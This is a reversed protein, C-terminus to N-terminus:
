VNTIAAVWVDRVVDEVVTQVVVEQANIEVDPVDMVLEM